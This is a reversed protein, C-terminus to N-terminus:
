LISGIVALFLVRDGRIARGALALTAVLGGEARAAPVRPVGLAAVFGAAALVALCAPALWVNMGAADLLLGGAATGAIIAIFSWMEITGNGASLREHPLIEALIGYKAPSFIASHAGMLALVVLAAIGGAPHLWLAVAAATMLFVEAGKVWVIINRKSLRDALVGAFISVFALPLAFTVFAITTRAQAGTELDVGTGADLAARMALLAVMLKWANDNFAGCFQAVVLGRLPHRPAAAVAEQTGPMLAAARSQGPVRPAASTPREGSRAPPAHLRKRTPEVPAHGNGGKHRTGARSQLVNQVWLRCGRSGTTCRASLA